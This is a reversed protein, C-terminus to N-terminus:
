SAKENSFFLVLRDKCHRLRHLDSIENRSIVQADIWLEIISENSHFSTKAV